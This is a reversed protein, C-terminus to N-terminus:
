KSKNCSQAAEEPSVQQIVSQIEAIRQQMEPPMQEQALQAALFQLHQM